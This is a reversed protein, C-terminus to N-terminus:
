FLGDARDGAPHFKTPSGMTKHITNINTDERLDVKSGDFDAHVVTM